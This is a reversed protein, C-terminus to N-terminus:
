LLHCGDDDDKPHFTKKKAYISKSNYELPVSQGRIKKMLDQYRKSNRAQQRTSTDLLEELLLDDETASDSSFYKKNFFRDKKDIPNKCKNKKNTSTKFLDRDNQKKTTQQDNRRSSSKKSKADDLEAEPVLLEELNPTEDDALVFSRIKPNTKALKQQNTIQKKKGSFFEKFFKPIRKLKKAPEVLIQLGIWMLPFLSIWFVLFMILDALEILVNSSSVANPDPSVVYEDVVQLLIATCGLCNVLLNYRNLIKICYPQLIALLLSLFAFFIRLLGVVSCSTTGPSFHLSNSPVGEFIASLVTLLIELYVTLYFPGTLEEFVSAYREVFMSGKHQNKWRVSRGFYPKLINKIGQSTSPIDDSDDSSSSSDDDDDDDNSDDDNEKEERKKKKKKNKKKEEAKQEQKKERSEKKKRAKIDDPDELLHSPFAVAEDKFKSPPLLPAKYLMQILPFFIMPVGFLITGVKRAIGPSSDGSSIELTAAIVSGHVLMVCFSWVFDYVGAWVLIKVPVLNGFFSEQLEYRFSKKQNNKRSRVRKRTSPKIGASLLILDIDFIEGDENEVADDNDDEEDSALFEKARNASQKYAVLGFVVVYVLILLIGNGVLAGAAYSGDIAFQLPHDFPDLPISTGSITSCDLIRYGALFRRTALSPGIGGSGAFVMATMTSASAVGMAIQVAMPPAFQFPRPIEINTTKSQESFREPRPRCRLAGDGFHIEGEFSTYRPDVGPEGEIFVDLILGQFRVRAKAISFPKRHTSGDDSAVQVKLLREVNYVLEPDFRSWKSPPGSSPALIAEGSGDLPIEVITGNQGSPLPASSSAVTTTTFRPDTESEYTKAPDASVFQIEVRRVVKGPIENRLAKPFFKVTVKDFEGCFPKESETFSETATRSICKPGEITVQWASYLSETLFAAPRFESVVCPVSFYCPQTNIGCRITKQPGPYSFVPPSSSYKIGASHTFTLDSINISSGPAAVIPMNELLVPYRIGIRAEIEANLLSPDPTVVDILGNFLSNQPLPPPLLEKTVQAILASENYLKHIAFSCGKLIFYSPITRNLFLPLRFLSTKVFNLDSEFDKPPRTQFPDEFRYAFKDNTFRFDIHDGDTDKPFVSILSARRLAQITASANATFNFINNRFSIKRTYSMGLLPKETQMLFVSSCNSRYTRAEVFNVNNNEIKAIYDWVSSYGGLEIGTACLSESYSYYQSNQEFQSPVGDIAVSLINNNKITVIANGKLKEATGVGFGQLYLFNLTDIDIGLMLLLSRDTPDLPQGFLGSSMDISAPIGPQVSIGSGVIPGLPGQISVDNNSIFATTHSPIGSGIGIGARGQVIKSTINVNIKNSTVSFEGFCHENELGDGIVVESSKDEVYKRLLVSSSLSACIGGAVSLEVIPVLSKVNITNSRFRNCLRCNSSASSYQPSAAASFDLQSLESSPFCPDSSSPTYYRPDVKTTYGCARARTLSVGVANFVRAANTTILDINKHRVSDFGEVVTEIVNDIVDFRQSSSRDEIGVAGIAGKVIINNQRFILQIVGLCRAMSKVSNESPDEQGPEADPEFFDLQSAPDVAYIYSKQPGQGRFVTGVYFKSEGLTSMYATNAQIVATVGLFADINAEVSKFTHSCVAFHEDSMSWITSGSAYNACVLNFNNNMMEFANASPTKPRIVITGDLQSKKSRYTFRAAIKTCNTGSFKNNNIKVSGLVEVDALGVELLAQFVSRRSGPLSALYLNGDLFGSCFFENNEFVFDTDVQYFNDVLLNQYAYIPDDNSSRGIIASFLPSDRGDPVMRGDLPFPAVYNNRVEFKTMKGSFASIQFRFVNHLRNDNLRLFINGLFPIESIYTESDSHHDLTFFPSICNQYNITIDPSIQPLSSNNSTTTAPQFYPVRTVLIMVPLAQLKNTSSPGLCTVSISEAGPHLYVVMSTFSSLQQMLQPTFSLDLKTGNPQKTGLHLINPNTNGVFTTPIDVASILLISHLIILTIIIITLLLFFYLSLIMHSEINNIKTIIKRLLFV